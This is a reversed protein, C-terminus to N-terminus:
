FFIYRTSSFSVVSTMAISSSNYYSLSPNDKSRFQHYFVILIANLQNIIRDKVRFNLILNKRHHYNIIITNLIRIRKILRNLKPKVSNNLIIKDSLPKCIIIYASFVSVRKEFLSKNAEKDKLRLDQETIM